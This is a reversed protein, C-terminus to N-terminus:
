QEEIMISVAVDLGNLDLINDRGDSVWIRIANIQSKNVPHWEVRYPEKQFPYSVQLNATSFSFLVDSGVDNAQRTILDCHLFVWDVRKTTNPVMKGVFNTGKSLEAKKFGVLKAFQGRSLDLEYNKRILIVVRYIAMNFYLTFIHESDKDELDVRGTQTQLFSNIDSYSYMGDPFTLTQWNESKKRWRIKNKDYVEAINYWSYSM